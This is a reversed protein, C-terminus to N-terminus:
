GSYISGPMRGARRLLGEDPTGVLRYVGLDTNNLRLRVPLYDPTLLGLSKAVDLVIQEELGFPTVDNVLNFTRLGDVLDGKAARVKFSKQVGIHHWHRRGQLRVRVKHMQGDKRLRANVYTRKGTGRVDEELSKM